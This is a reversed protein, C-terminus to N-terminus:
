IYSYIYKNTYLAPKDVGKACVRRFRCYHFRVVTTHKRPICILHYKDCQTIVMARSRFITENESRANSPQLDPM